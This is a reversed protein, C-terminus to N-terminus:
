RNRFSPMGAGVLFNVKKAPEDRLSHGTFHIFVDELSLEHLTIAKVRRGLSSVRGIVLPIAQAGDDTALVLKGNGNHGVDRIYAQARLDDIVEESAHDLELEIRDGGSV